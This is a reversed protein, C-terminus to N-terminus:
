GRVLAAFRAAAIFAGRRRERRFEAEADKGWLEAQWDEELNAADWLTKIDAGPDLAALAIVMSAALSALTKTAALTFADQEALVARIRELTQPPQPQHLISNARVFHLDLRREAAQLLPEWLGLQRLHLPDDPDARYCMTDTEAYPLLTNIASAVDPAIADIAYDALDRLVFLTPDIEEGQGQWEEALAHALAANPLILARQGQTKVARGDLTVRWGADCPEAAAHKYFRKM